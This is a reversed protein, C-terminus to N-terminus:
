SPLLGKKKLDGIADRVLVPLSRTKVGLTSARSFDFRTPRARVQGEAILAPAPAPMAPYAQRIEAALDDWHWADEAISFFRGTKELEFAAVHHAACDRVDILSMSDNPTQRLGDKCVSLLRGMTANVGSQLMPGFVMTPLITTLKFRRGPEISEVYTWAEKEALTKSAGYWSNKAIQLDPDSWHGENKMDPEPDPAVASMSSTMVVHKVTGAKVCSELVSRTGEVAPEIFEKRGDVPTGPAPIFLPSAMHMVADCGEICEDYSGRESLTAQHLTLRDRAGPLKTLHGVKVEDSPSRVAARVTHGKELLIRVVHSAIFGNGGTVAVVSM